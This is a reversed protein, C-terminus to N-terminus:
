ITLVLYESLSGNALWRELWTHERCPNTHACTHIDTHIDTM